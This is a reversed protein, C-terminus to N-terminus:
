EDRTLIREPVIRETLDVDVKPFAKDRNKNYKKMFFDGVFKDRIVNKFFYKASKDAQFILKIGQIPTFNQLKQLLNLTRSTYEIGM